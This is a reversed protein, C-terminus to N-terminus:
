IRKKPEQLAIWTIALVEIATDAEFLSSAFEQTLFCYEKVKNGTAEPVRSLSWWREGFGDLLQDLSPCAIFEEFLAPLNLPHTWQGHGNYYGADMKTQDWGATKLRTALELSIHNV